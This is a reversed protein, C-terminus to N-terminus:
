AMTPLVFNPAMAIRVLFLSFVYM